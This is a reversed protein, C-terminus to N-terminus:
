RCVLKGSLGPYKSLYQRFHSQKLSEIHNNRSIINNFVIIKKIGNNNSEVKSFGYIYLKIRAVVNNITEQYSSLKIINLCLVESYPYLLEVNLIMNERPSLYFEEILKAINPLNNVIM